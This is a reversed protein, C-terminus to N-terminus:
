LYEDFIVLVRNLAWPLPTDALLSKMYDESHRDGQAVNAKDAIERITPVDEPSPKIEGANTNEKLHQLNKASM